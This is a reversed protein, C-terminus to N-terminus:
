RHGVSEKGTVKKIVDPNIPVVHGYVYESLKEKDDDNLNEKEDESEFFFKLAARTIRYRNACSGCEVIKDRSTDPELLTAESGCLYCEIKPHTM